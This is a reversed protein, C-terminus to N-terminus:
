AKSPISLKKKNNKEPDKVLLAELIYFVRFSSNLGSVEGTQTALYYLAPLKNGFYM